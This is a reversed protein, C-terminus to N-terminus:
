RTLSAREFLGGWFQEGVVYIRGSFSYIAGTLYPEPVFPSDLLSADFAKRNLVIPTRSVSFWLSKWRAGSSRVSASAAAKMYSM